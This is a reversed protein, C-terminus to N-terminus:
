EFGSKQCLGEVFHRAWYLRSMVTVSISIHVLLEDLSSVYASM